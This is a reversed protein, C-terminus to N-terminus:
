DLRMGELEDDPVGSFDKHLADFCTKVERRKVTGEAAEDDCAVDLSLEAKGESRSSSDGASANNGVRNLLIEKGCVPFLRLLNVIVRRRYRYPVNPQNLYRRSLYKILSYQIQIDVLCVFAATFIEM